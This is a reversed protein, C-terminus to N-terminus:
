VLNGYIRKLTMLAQQIEGEELGKLADYMAAIVIERARQHVKVGQKTLYILNSRKDSNDVLRAILAHKEMNDLMRTMSPKDKFTLTALAQQSVGDKVSLFQLVVWQEPTVNLKQARFDKYLKRTVATTARGSIVNVLLGTDDMLNEIM